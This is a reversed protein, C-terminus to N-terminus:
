PEAAPDDGLVHALVALADEDAYRRARLWAKARIISLSEKYRRDSLTRGEGELSRRITPISELLPRDFEVAAVAERAAHIEDLTIRTTLVPPRTDAMMELLHGDEAIYEVRYRLLFRDYLASLAE